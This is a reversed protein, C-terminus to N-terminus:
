ENSLEELEKMANELEESKKEVKEASEDMGEIMSEIRNSYEEQDVVNKDPETNVNGSEGESCSIMLFLLLQLILFRKM